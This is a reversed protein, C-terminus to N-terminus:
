ISADPVALSAQFGKLQAQSLTFRAITRHEDLKNNEKQVSYLEVCYTDPVADVQFTNCWLQYGSSDSILTGPNKQTYETTM